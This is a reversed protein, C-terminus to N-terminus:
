ELLRRVWYVKLGSYSLIELYSEAEGYDKCYLVLSKFSVLDRCEGGISEGLSRKAADSLRDPSLDYTEIEQYNMVLGYADSITGYLIGKREEWLYFEQNLPSTYIEKPFGKKLFSKRRSCRTSWLADEPIDKPDCLTIAYKKKIEDKLEEDKKM